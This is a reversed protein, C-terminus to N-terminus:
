QRAAGRLHAGRDDGLPLGMQNTCTAQPDGRRPGKCTTCQCTENSSEEPATGSRRAVKVMERLMSEVLSDKTADLIRAVVDIGVEEILKKAIAAARKAGKRFQGLAGGNKAAKAKQIQERAEIRASDVRDKIDMPNPQGGSELEAVIEGTITEPTSPAALLRITALPLVAVIASKAEFRRAMTMYDRATRVSWGFESVLWAEFHGHGLAAKVKILDKGIGIIERSTRQQHHRIKEATREVLERDNPALVSYDFSAPVPSKM